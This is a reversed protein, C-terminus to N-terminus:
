YHNLAQRNGGLLQLRLQRRSIARDRLDPSYDEDPHKVMEAKIHDIIREWTWGMALAFGISDYWGFIYKVPHVPVGFLACIGEDVAALTAPETAGKPTLQFCNPM